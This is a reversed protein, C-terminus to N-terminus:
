RKVGFLTPQDRRAVVQAPHMDPLQTPLQRIDFSVLLARQIGNCTNIGTIILEIQLDRYIM